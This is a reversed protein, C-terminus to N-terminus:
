SGVRARPDIVLRPRISPQPGLHTLTTTAAATVRAEDVGIGSTPTLRVQATRRGVTVHVADPAVGAAVATSRALASAIVEDDIVVAVRDTSLSHRTRRGPLVAALLLLLGVLAVGIGLPVMIGRLDTAPAAATRAAETPSFSLPARGLLQLVIETAVLLCLAIIVLAVVIALASRSSHMERRLVRRDRAAPTAASTRM